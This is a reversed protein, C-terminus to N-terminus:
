IEVRAPSAGFGFAITCPIAAVVAIVQPDTLSLRNQISARMGPMSILLTESRPHGLHGSRRPPLRWGRQIANSQGPLVRVLGCGVILRFSGGPQFGNYPGPDLKNLPRVRAVQPM